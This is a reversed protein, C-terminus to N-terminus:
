INEVQIKWINKLIKFRSSSKQVAYEWTYLQNKTLYASYLNKNTTVGVWFHNFLQM